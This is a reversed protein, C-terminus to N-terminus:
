TIYAYFSVGKRRSGGDAAANAAAEEEEARKRRRRKVETLRIYAHAKERDEPSDYPLDKENEDSDKTFVRVKGGAGQVIAILEDLNIQTTPLYSPDPIIFSLLTKKGSCAEAKGGGGIYAAAVTGGINIRFALSKSPTLALSGMATSKERNKGVFAKLFSIAEQMLQDRGADTRRKEEQELAQRFAEADKRSMYPFTSQEGKINAIAYMRHAMKKFPRLEEELPIHALDPVFIKYTLMKGMGTLTVEVEKDGEALPLMMSLATDSNLRLNRVMDEAFAEDVASPTHTIFPSSSAM